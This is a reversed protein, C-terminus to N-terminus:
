LGGRMMSRSCLNFLGQDPAHRAADLALRM